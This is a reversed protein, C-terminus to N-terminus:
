AVGALIAARRLASPTQTVLDRDPVGYLNVTPAFMTGAAPALSGGLPVSSSTRGAKAAASGMAAVAGEVAARQSEIGRVFGEGINTGFGAFVKSPSAIGLTSAFKQLPGPLLDVLARALASAMAGIGRILGRIMDKGIDVLSGGLTALSRLIRGPLSKFWDVVQGVRRGVEDALARVAAAVAKKIADWAASTVTRIVAWAAKLTAVVTGLILKFAAVITDWVSFLIKKLGEWAGKWDGRVIALVTKIVGSVVGLVGNVVAAVRGFQEVAFGVIDKGWKEWIASIVGTIRSVVAQVFSLYDTVISRVTAFAELVPPAIQAWKERFGAVVDGVIGTVTEAFNRYAGIVGDLGSTVSSFAGGSDFGSFLGKVVDIFGSLKPIAKNIGTVVATVAPLLASGIKTKVEGFQAALIRQQNALGGSTREFDGQADATQAMIEAQAALAKQQPTLATKVNDVIGLKMARARLTADDLLVGFRRIPESEGRLAAGIATIAEEPTTNGFSALDASLTTLDTAFNNLSGGTLGAAKGFVGFTSIADLAQTETQGLKTAATATFDRLAPLADEGFIQSTKGITENLDSAAGVSDGFFKVASGVAFAAALPGAVKKVMGLAGAGAAKGYQKGGATGAATLDGGIESQIGRAFGKASPVLTVFATAVESM